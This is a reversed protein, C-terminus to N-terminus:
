SWLVLVRSPEDPDVRVPVTMGATLLDGMSAPVEGRTVVRYAPREPVTVELDLEVIRGAPTAIDLDRHGHVVARGALGRGALEARAVALARGTGPSAATVEPVPMGPRMRGVMALAQRVM